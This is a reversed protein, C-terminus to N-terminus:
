SEKIPGPTCFNKKGQGFDLLGLRGGERGEATYIKEKWGKAVPSGERDRWAIADWGAM